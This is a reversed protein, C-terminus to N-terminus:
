SFPITYLLNNDLTSGLFSFLLPEGRGCCACDDGLMCQILVDSCSCPVIYACCQVLVACCTEPNHLTQRETVAAHQEGSGGGSVMAVVVSVLM